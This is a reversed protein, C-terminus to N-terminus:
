HHKSGSLTKESAKGEDSLNWTGGNFPYTNKAATRILGELYSSLTQRTRKANEEALQKVNAPLLFVCRKQAPTEKHADNM